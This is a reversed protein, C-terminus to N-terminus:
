KASKAGALKVLMVLGIWLLSGLAASIEARLSVELTKRDFVPTLSIDRKKLRFSNEILPLLTGAVASAAGYAVATGAADDSGYVVALELDDITLKRRLRGLADSALRVIELVRGASAGKKPKSEEPEEKKKKEKKKKGQKSPMIRFRFPGYKVYATVGGDAILVKAGARLCLLIAIFAAIAAIIIATKM